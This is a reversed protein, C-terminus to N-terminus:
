RLTGTFSLEAPGTLYVDRSGDWAVTLIGGPLHVLVPTCKEQGTSLMHVIAAACAGSGCARTEGSGREWVRVALSGDARRQVFEVNTRDPFRSHQELAPGIGSILADTLRDVFVVAHPNGLSVITAKVMTGDPFLLDPFEIEERSAPFEPRGVDVRVLAARGPSLSQLITATLLRDGMLIRCCAGCRRQHQMWMAVCRAANGCMAGASGDSNWMKMEVDCPPVDGAANPPVLFVLGDSGIGTHRDSVRRALAAPDSPLQQEFGDIFVYDNGAGHMKIFSLGPM